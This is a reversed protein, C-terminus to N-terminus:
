NYFFEVYRNESVVELQSLISIKEVALVGSFRLVALKIGPFRLM